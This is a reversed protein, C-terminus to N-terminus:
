GALTVVRIVVAYAEAAAGSVETAWAAAAAEIPDDVESAREGQRKGARTAPEGPFHAGPRLRGGPAAELIGQEKLGAVIAAAWSKARYGWLEALGSLPPISRHQAYYDRLSEIYPTLNRLTM